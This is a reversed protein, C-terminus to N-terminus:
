PHWKKYLGCMMEHVIARAHEPLTSVKSDARKALDVSWIIKKEPTVIAAGYQTAFLINGNPQMSADSIEGAGRAEGALVEM